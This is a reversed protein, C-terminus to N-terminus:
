HGGMKEYCFIIIGPKINRDSESNYDKYAVETVIKTRREKWHANFAVLSVTRFFHMALEPANCCYKIYVGAGCAVAYTM